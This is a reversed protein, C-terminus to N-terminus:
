DGRGKTSLDLTLTESFAVYTRSVEYSTAPVFAKIEMTILNM